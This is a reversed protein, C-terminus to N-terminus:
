LDYSYIVIVSYLDGCCVSFGKYIAIDESSTEQSRSRVLAIGRSVHELGRQVANGKRDFEKRSLIGYLVSETAGNDEKFDRQVSWASLATKLLVETTAHTDTAASVHKGLRQTSIFTKESGNALLPQKGPGVTRAKVVRYSM